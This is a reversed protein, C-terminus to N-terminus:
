LLFEVILANAPHACDAHGGQEDVARRAIHAARTYRGM